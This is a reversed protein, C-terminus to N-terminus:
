IFEYLMWVKLISSKDITHAYNRVLNWSFITKFQKRDSDLKCQIIKMLCQHATAAVCIPSPGSFEVQLHIYSDFFTELRRFCRNEEKTTHSWHVDNTTASAFNAARKRISHDQTLNTISGFLLQNYHIYWKLGARTTEIRYAPAVPFFTLRLSHSIDQLECCQCQKRIFFARVGIFFPKFM